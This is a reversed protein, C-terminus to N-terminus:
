RENYRLRHSAQQWTVIADTVLGALLAALPWTIVQSWLGFDSNASERKMIILICASLILWPLTRSVFGSLTASFAGRRVL